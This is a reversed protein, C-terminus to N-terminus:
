HGPRHSWLRSRFCPEGSSGALGGSRTYGTSHSLQCLHTPSLNTPDEGIECSLCHPVRSYARTRLIDVSFVYARMISMSACRIQIDITAIDYVTNMRQKRLRACRGCSAVRGGCRSATQACMSTCEINEQKNRRTVVLWSSSVGNRLQRVQVRLEIPTHNVGHPTQDLM